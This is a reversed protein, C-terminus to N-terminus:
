HTTINGTSCIDPHLPHWTIRRHNQGREGSGQLHLWLKGQSTNQKRTTAWIFVACHLSSLRTAAPHLAFQHHLLVPQWAQHWSPRVRLGLVRQRQKWRSGAAWLLSCSSTPPQDLSAQHAHAKSHPPSPCDPLYTDRCPPLSLPTISAPSSTGTDRVNHQLDMTVKHQLAQAWQLFAQALTPRPVQGLRFVKGTHKIKFTQQGSTQASLLAPNRKCFWLGPRKTHQFNPPDRLSHPAAPTDTPTCHTPSLRPTSTWALLSQGELGHLSPDPCTPTPSHARPVVRRYGPRPAPATRPARKLVQLELAPVLADRPPQSQHCRHQTRALAPATRHRWGLGSQEQEEPRQGWQRSCQEFNV